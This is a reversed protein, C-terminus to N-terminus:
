PHDLRQVLSRRFISGVPPFGQKSQCANASGTFMGVRKVPGAQFNAIRRAAWTAYKSEQRLVSVVSFFWLFANWALSHRQSNTPMLRSRFEERFCLCLLQGKAFCTARTNRLRLNGVCQQTNRLRWRNARLLVSFALVCYLWLWICSELELLFKGESM